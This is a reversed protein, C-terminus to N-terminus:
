DVSCGSLALLIVQWHADIGFLQERVDMCTRSSTSCEDGKSDQLTAFAATVSM